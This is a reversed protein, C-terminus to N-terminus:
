APAKNKLAPPSIFREIIFQAIQGTDNLDLVPISVKDALPQDSAVAIFDPDDICLLPHGLSPRHLEIKPINGPKFGEVLVIDLDAGNMQRMYFELPREKPVPDEVILAWRRASGILLQEAGAKRLEFSDKGPHDIEFTHHAHKIVGVRLDRQKFLTLLKVLLTTKGTGSFAAFGVVPLDPM